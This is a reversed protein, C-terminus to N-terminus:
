QGERKRIDGWSDGEDGFSELPGTFMPSVAHAKGDFQGPMLPAHNAKKFEDIPCMGMFTGIRTHVFLMICEIRGEMNKVGGVKRVEDRLDKDTHVMWGECAVVALSPAPMNFRPLNERLTSGEDLLEHVMGRVKAQRIHEPESFMEKMLNPPMPVVDPLLEGPREGLAIGVM